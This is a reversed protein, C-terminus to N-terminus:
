IRALNICFILVVLAASLLSETRSQPNTYNAIMSGRRPCGADRTAGVKAVM